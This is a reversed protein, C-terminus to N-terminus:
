VVKLFMCLQVKTNTTCLYNSKYTIQTRVKIAIKRM